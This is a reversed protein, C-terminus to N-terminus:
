GQVMAPLSEEFPATAVGKETIIASILQAPTVDFAPNYTRVGQPAMPQRYWLSTIEEGPREEIPIEKGSGCSLDVTSTPGLVYFPIGYHRALVGLSLTGIKNATDGNRAVRDCGVLVAQIKGAAMLSAAMSDCQLTVDVGARCLEFATLRAGQLLPRTEDAYVHFGYGEQKGLLIPGLATGWRSTALEGANCHTLLGMGPQLLSLGHRAISLNQKEDEQLISDAQQLLADLCASVDWEHPCAALCKEMRSLAWSLNVATPRATKLYACTDELAKELEQPNRPNKERTGLWAGYAAAVGIAPAGRVQLIRIATWVEEATKLAQYKVEGPLLTQDVIRLVGAERDFWNPRLREEM